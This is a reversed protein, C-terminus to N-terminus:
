DRPRYAALYAGARSALGGVSAWLRRAGSAPAPPGPAVPRVVMGLTAACRDAGSSTAARTPVGLDRALGLGLGAALADPALRAGPPGAAGGAAGGEWAAAGGGGRPPSKAFRAALGGPGDPGRPPRGGGAFVPALQQSRWTAAVMLMGGVVLVAAVRAPGTLDGGTRVLPQAAVAAVVTLSVTAQATGIATSGEDDVVVATVTNTESAGANGTFTATFSCTYTQGPQLLAGVACTGQGQLNGHIDDALSTVTVPENSTNTM